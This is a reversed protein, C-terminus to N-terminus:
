NNKWKISCGIGKTFNTPVPKGDLLHNVADEVYKKNVAEANRYNDDIAGIYKVRLEDAEIKLVFVHPTYKAGYDSAVKQTEDFLYPFPYNKEEARAKMNEFSDEPVREPDNPNIAIVPYGKEAFKQHLGIIRQEYMKAYPCHNCTFVVIFGSASEYDGISVWSGDVNKLRFDRAVSGVKYGEPNPKAEQVTDKDSHQVFGILAVTVLIGIGAVILSQKKFM